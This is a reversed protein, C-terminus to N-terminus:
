VTSTTPLTLHTYSVTPSSPLLMLSPHFLIFLEQGFLKLSFGQYSLKGSIFFLPCIMPIMLLFNTFFNFSLEFSRITAPVVSEFAANIADSILRSSPNVTKPVVNTKFFNM